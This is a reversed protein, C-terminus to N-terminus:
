VVFKDDSCRIQKMIASSVKVLEFYCRCIGAALVAVALSEFNSNSFLYSSDINVLCETM